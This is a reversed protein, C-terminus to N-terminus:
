VLLMEVNSIKDKTLHPPLLRHHHQHRQNGRAKPLCSTLLINENCHRSSFSVAWFFPVWILSRHTHMQPTLDHERQRRRSGLELKRCPKHTSLGSAGREREGEEGRGRERGEGQPGAWQGRIIRQEMVWRHRCENMWQSFIQSNSWM